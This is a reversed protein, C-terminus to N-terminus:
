REMYVSLFHAALGLVNLELGKLARGKAFGGGLFIKLLAYFGGVASLVGVCIFLGQWLKHGEPQKDRLYSKM